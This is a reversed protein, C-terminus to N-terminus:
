YNVILLVPLILIVEVEPHHLLFNVVVKVNLKTKFSTHIHYLKEHCMLNTQQSELIVESVFM